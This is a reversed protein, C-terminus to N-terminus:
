YKSPTLSCNELLFIFSPNVITLISFQLFLVNSHEGFHGSSPTVLKSAMQQHQVPQSQPQQQKKAASVPISTSSVSSRAVPIRCDDDIRDDDFDHNAAAM